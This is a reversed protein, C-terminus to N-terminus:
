RGATHRGDRSMYATATPRLALFLSCAALAAIGVAVTLFAAVVAASEDPDGAVLTVANLAHVACTLFTLALGGVLVGRGAGVALRAGGAFLLVVATVQVVALAAAAVAFWSAGGATFVVVVIASGCFLVAGTVAGLLAAWTVSGPRGPADLLADVWVAM